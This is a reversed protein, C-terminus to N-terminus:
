CVGCTTFCPPGPLRSINHVLVRLIRLTQRSPPAAPPRPKAKLRCAVPKQCRHEFGRSVNGFSVQSGDVTNPRKGKVLYVGGKEASTEGDHNRISACALSPYLQARAPRSCALPQTSPLHAVVRPKLHETGQSARGESQLRM